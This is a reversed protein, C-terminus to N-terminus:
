ATKGPSYWCSNPESASMESRRQIPCFLVVVCRSLPTRLLRLPQVLSLWPLHDQSPSLSTNMRANNKPITKPPIRTTRIVQITLPIHSRLDPGSSHRSHWERGATSRIGPLRRSNRHPPHVHEVHPATSSLRPRGNREASSGSWVARSLWPQARPGTRPM